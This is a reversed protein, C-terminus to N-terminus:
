AVNLCQGRQFKGIPVSLLARRRPPLHGSKDGAEVRDRIVWRPNNVRGSGGSRFIYAMNLIASGAALRVQATARKATSVTVGKVTIQSGDCLRQALRTFAPDAHTRDLLMGLSGFFSPM